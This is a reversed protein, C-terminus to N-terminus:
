QGGEFIKFVKQVTSNVAQKSVNLQRAIESGNMGGAMMGIVKRQSNSLRINNSGIIAKATEIKKCLPNKSKQAWRTKNYCRKCLLHKSATQEGCM